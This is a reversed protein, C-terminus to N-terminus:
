AWGPLARTAVARQPAKWGSRKSATLVPHTVGKAIATIDRGGHDPTKSCHLRRAAFRVAGACSFPRSFRLGRAREFNGIHYRKTLPKRLLPLLTRLPALPLPLPTVLPTPLVRLPALPTALPTRLLLPLTPPWTPPMRLLPTLLPKLLKKRRTRAPRSLSFALPPLLLSFSRACTHYEKFLSHVVCPVLGRPFGVM